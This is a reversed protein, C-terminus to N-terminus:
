GNWSNGCFTCKIMLNVGEDLSRNYRRETICQNRKCKRCRYLESYKVKTELSMRKNLKQDLKQYKIPCLERTSMNTIDELSYEQNLIKTKLYDSGVTSKEDLNVSIKYCISHYLNVFKDNSWVCRINLTKAKKMTQNLCSIELEKVM